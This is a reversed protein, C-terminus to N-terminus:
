IGQLTRKFAEAGSSPVVIDTEAQYTETTSKGYIIIKVDPPFASYPVTPGKEISVSINETSSLTDQGRIIRGKAFRYLILQDDNKIITFTSDSINVIEKAREVDLVILTIARDVFSHVETRQQWSFLLKHTFSFLSYCFGLLLSSVLLVVLIEQITFGKQDKLFVRISM